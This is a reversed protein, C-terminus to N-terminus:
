IINFIHEAERHAQRCQFPWSFEAPCANPPIEADDSPLGDFAFDTPRWQPPFVDACFLPAAEMFVVMRGFKPM